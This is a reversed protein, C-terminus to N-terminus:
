NGGPSVPRNEEPIRGLQAADCHGCLGWQIGVAIVIGQINFPPTLVMHSRIKPQITGCQDCRRDEKTGAIRTMELGACDQCRIKGPAWPLWVGPTPALRRIHKCMGIQGSQILESFRMLVPSTEPQIVGPKGFERLVEPSSLTRAYASLTTEFLDSIYEVYEPPQTVLWARLKAIKDPSLPEGTALKEHLEIIEPLQPSLTIERGSPLKLSTARNIARSVPKRKRKSM